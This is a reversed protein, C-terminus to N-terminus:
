SPQIMATFAVPMILCNPQRPKKWSMVWRELKKFSNERKIFSARTGSVELSSRTPM